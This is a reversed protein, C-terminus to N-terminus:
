AKEIGKLAIIFVQNNPCEIACIDGYLKDNESHPAIARIVGLKGNNLDGSKSWKEELEPANKVIWDRYSPFCEGSKTIRVLDGVKFKPEVYPEIDCERIYCGHEKCNWCVGRDDKSRIDTLTIVEGIDAFHVCTNSIVKVRDGAKFGRKKTDEAKEVYPEFDREQIYGAHENYFWVTEKLTIVEGIEAYHSCTNAIVKVKDGAKYKPAEEKSEKGLLRNFALEAGKEFDFTDEPSCKATATKIVKNGEYLRALTEKGNTTIVIKKDEILELEREYGFRGHGNKAKGACTHGDAGIDEDFEVAIEYLGDKLEIVRGTKGKLNVHDFTDIVRVRDGINFKGM